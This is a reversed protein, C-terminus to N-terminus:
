TADLSATELVEIGMSLPFTVRGPQSYKGVKHLTLKTWAEKTLRRVRQLM